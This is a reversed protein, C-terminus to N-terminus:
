GTPVLLSASWCPIGWLSDSRYPPVRIGTVPGRGIVCRRASSPYRACKQQTKILSLHCAACPDEYGRAPTANAWPSHHTQSALEKNTETRGRSEEKWAGRYRGRM